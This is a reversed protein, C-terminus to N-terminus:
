STMTKLLLIAFPLLRCIAECPNGIKEKMLRSIFPKNQAQLCSDRKSRIKACWTKYIHPRLDDKRIANVSFFSTTLDFHGAEIQSVKDWSNVMSPTVDNWTKGGDITTHVLGDDTGAWILDKNLSSGSVSYIVARQKMTNLSETKYDGISTPVEPQKRTLDPSIIEWQQGGTTTKWLVNTAFLLMNADAPHFLLPLTRVM